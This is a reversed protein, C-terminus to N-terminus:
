TVLGARRLLADLDGRGAPVLAYAALYALCGVALHVLFPGVRAPLTGGTVDAPLFLGLATCAGVLVVAGALPAALVRALFRGPHVDLVRFVYVGPVLGNSVLTTLVTGWIVGSVGLKITLLFSLPLNVLSGGLASLAIVRVRKMGIAAQVLVSLVLPLAAVLFLQMLWAQGAYRPVWLALFPGAYLGALLGVPLLLAVLLRTGDYKIKELAAADGAAALSAVAPMVLYALMWGTQRLQLFPKSIAQYTAIAPEPDDLAYGLVTTDLKDALVVSLQIMFMYASVYVLSTYDAWRVRGFRPVYGLEHAMVWLGPGLGLAVQVAIQAAVVVFFDVGLKLGVALVLFRLVVIALEFRPLVDYRRAAQLISGVVVNLGYCPATVAQLVLLKVILTHSATGFRDPVGWAAVALLAAAQILSAAAYFNLGCAIARDVAPRDDRTWAEAVQRNLASSMGFELLFQLFGFGWAFGYAGYAVDGVTDLILPVTWLAFLAQLPTRLAMWFTGRLLRGLVPPLARAPAQGPDATAAATSLPVDEPPDPPM